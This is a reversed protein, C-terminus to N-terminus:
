HVTASQGERDVLKLFKSVERPPTFEVDYKTALKKYEDFIKDTLGNKAISDEYKTWLKTFDMIMLVATGNLCSQSDFIDQRTTFDM